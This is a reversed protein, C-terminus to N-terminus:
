SGVHAAAQSSIEAFRAALGGMESDLGRLQKIRVVLAALAETDGRCAALLCQCHELEVQWYFQPHQAPDIGAILEAYHIRSKAYRGMGRLARAISLLNTVDAPSKGDVSQSQYYKECENFLQLSREFLRGARIRKGVSSYAWGSEMLAEAFVQTMEYRGAIPKAALPAFMDEAFDLYAQQFEILESAPSAQARMQGIRQRIQGVMVKLLGAAEAPHLDRFRRLEDIADSTRRLDLLKRIRFEAAIKMVSSRPFRVRVQDMMLLGRGVEDLHEYTVSAAQFESLSGWRRLQEARTADSTKNALRGAQTAYNSLSKVLQRASNKKDAPPSIDLLSSRLQLAWYRSEMYEDSDLRLAEYTSIARSIWSIQESADTTEGSVKHCQYALEYQWRQSDAQGTDILAALYGIYEVRFERPILQGANLMQDLRASSAYVCNLAADAGRRHSPYQSAMASFMKAAMQLKGQRQLVIGLQWLADPRLTASVQDDRKLVLKLAQEAQSLNVQGDIDSASKDAAIALLILSSLKRYGGAQRYLPGIVALFKDRIAPTELAPRILADQAAAFHSAALDPKTESISDGIRSHLYHRLLAGHIVSRAANAPFLKRCTQTYQDIAERVASWQGREILCRAIEFQGELRIQDPSQDAGTSLLYKMSEQSFQQRDADNDTLMALERVARGILLDIHYDLGQSPADSVQKASGLAGSLLFRKSKAKSDPTAMARYLQVWALRYQAQARLNELQPVAWILKTFDQRMAILDEDIRRTLEALLSEAHGMRAFVFERDAQSAHLYVLWSVEPGCRLLGAVEARRLVVSFHRVKQGDTQSETTEGALKKLETDVEDFKSQRAARSDSAQVDAIMKEISALRSEIEDGAPADAWACCIVSLIVAIAWAAPTQLYSRKM